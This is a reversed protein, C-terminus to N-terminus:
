ANFNKKWIFGDNTLLQVKKEIVSAMKVAM